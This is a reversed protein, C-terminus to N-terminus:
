GDIRAVRIFEGLETVSLGSRREAGRWVTIRAWKWGTAAGVTREYMAYFRWGTVPHVGAWIGFVQVDKFTGVAVARMPGRSYGTRIEWGAARAQRAVRAVASPDAPADAPRHDTNLVVPPPDVAPWERRSGSM